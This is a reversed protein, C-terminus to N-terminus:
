VGLTALLVPLAQAFARARHSIEDKEASSLEALTRPTFSKNVSSQDPIFIPDYGFGNTGNPATSINGDLTGKFDFRHNKKLDVFAVVTRFQARRNSEQDLKRLVKNINAQAPNLSFLKVEDETSDSFKESAYRASYVGPQNNLASIFLGSDDALCPLKAFKAIASAKLYANEELTAGTEEVDPMDPFDNLGLVKLKKGILREFEAIKGLNKTALVIM